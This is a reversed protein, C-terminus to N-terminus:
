CAGLVNYIRAYSRLRVLAGQRKKMYIREPALKREDQHMSCFASCYINKTMCACIYGECLVCVRV